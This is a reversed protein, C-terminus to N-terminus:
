FESPLNKKKESPTQIQTSTSPNGYQHPFTNQPQTLFLSPSSISCHSVTKRKKRKRIRLSKKKEPRIQTHITRRATFPNKPIATHFTKYHTSTFIIPPPNTTKSHTLQRSEHLDINSPPTTGFSKQVVACRPIQRNM